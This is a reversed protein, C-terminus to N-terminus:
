DLTKSSHDLLNTVVARAPVAADGGYSFETRALEEGTDVAYLRTLVLRDRADYSYSTRSILRERPGQALKTLEQASTRVGDALGVVAGGTAGLVAPSVVFVLALVVAARGDSGSYSAGSGSNLFAGAMAGSAKLGWDVGAGSWEYFVRLPKHLDADSAMVAVDFSAFPRGNELRVITFRDGPSSPRRKLPAPVVPLGKPGYALSGVVIRKTEVAADQEKVGIRGGCAVLAALAALLAAHRM